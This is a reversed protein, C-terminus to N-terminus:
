DMCDLSGLMRSFGHKEKHHQYLKEIDTVMPKRLYAPGYIDMVAQCFHDLDTHSTRESIQMYEDLFGANVGYALQRIAFTCENFIRNFLPRAMRFTKQFRTADYMPDESFFAAVLREHSGSHDRTINNRTLQNAQRRIKIYAIARKIFNKRRSNFEQGEEVDIGLFTYSNM